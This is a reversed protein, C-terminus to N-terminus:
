LVCFEFICFVIKVSKKLEIEDRGEVEMRM